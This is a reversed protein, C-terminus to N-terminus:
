RVIAFGNHAWRVLQAGFYLTAMIVVANDKIHKKM